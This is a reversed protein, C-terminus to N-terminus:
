AKVPAAAKATEGTKGQADKGVGKGAGKDDKGAGKNPKLNTARVGLPTRGTTV